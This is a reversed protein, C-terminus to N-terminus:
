RLLFDVSLKLGKCSSINYLLPRMVFLDVLAADIDSLMKSDSCRERESEGERERERERERGGPAMSRETRVVGKEEAGQVKSSIPGRM